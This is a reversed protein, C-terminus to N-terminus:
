MHTVHRVIILKARKNEAAVYFPEHTLLRLPAPTTAASPAAPAAAAAVLSPYSTACMCVCMCLSQPVAASMAFM